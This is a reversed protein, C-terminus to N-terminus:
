FGALGAVKGDKCARELKEVTDIGLKDHLAKIKKPGLGSIELMDRMGSPISAKLKEYYDLKDTTVLETIKDQLAEGIGKIEGLRKEAVIKPLPEELQQLTRAANQYARTKFPNEGKLELLLGIDVLIDAVQDKDM